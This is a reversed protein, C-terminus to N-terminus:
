SRGEAKAIAENALVAITCEQNRCNATIRKLAALLDPAAAFLRADAAHQDDSFGPRRQIAAVASGGSHSTVWHTFERTYSTEVLFPGPTHKSM